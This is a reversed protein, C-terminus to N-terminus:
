ALATLDVIAVAGGAGINTRANAKQTDTLGQANTDFRVFKNSTWEETAVMRDANWSSTDPLRLGYGSANPQLRPSNSDSVGQFYFGNNIMSDTDLGFYICNTGRNISLGNVYLSGNNVAIVDSGTFNNGSLIVHRADLQIGSEYPVDSGDGYTYTKIYSTTHSDTFALGSSNSITKLGTITQAGADLIFTGTIDPLTYTRDAHLMGSYQRAFISNGTSHPSGLVFGGDIYTKYNASTYILINGTSTISNPSLTESPKVYLSGTLAKLSGASLPLYSTALDGDPIGGSPKSYTGAGINTRANAKETDGLGQSNIDFRVYRTDHTHDGVAVTTSTTGTPITFALEGAGGNATATYTLGSWSGTTHYYNTASITIDHGSGRLAVNAGSVFNVAGTSIGTGLLETGDVQINRWTDSDTDGAPILVWESGNSVFVDGVKAAQGAYTGATIVKYTYGENVSSAAPLVSITGGIGLTGKFIMPEPLNDIATWVAGSTVLDNNGSAVSTAVGKGAAAGLVAITNSVVSTGGVTVDTVPYSPAPASITITHTDSDAAVTVNGSGVINLTSNGSQNAGFLAAMTSNGYIYLYGNNVTPIDSTMAFTGDKNPFEFSHDATLNTTKLIAYKPSNGSQSSMLIGGTDAAGYGRLRVMGDITFTITEGGAGTLIFDSDASGGHLSLAGINTRANDKQANSLGQANTDYRVYRAESYERTALTRGTAENPIYLVQNNFTNEAQLTIYNGDQGDWLVLQGRIYNSGIVIRAPDDDVNNDIQLNGYLTKDGAFSQTTTSVLGAQGYTAFQVYLDALGTGVATGIKLGSSGATTPTHYHDTNDSAPMKFIITNGGATLQYSQNYDLTITPTGSSSALSLTHTHNGVAVTNATTGTPITFALPDAGGNATATYTLGSWSGTTHYKDTASITIKPAGTGSTAGTVSINTGAVIDIVDNDGFTTSGAKIRQNDTSGGAPIFRTVGNITISTWNTGDNLGSVYDTTAITKNATLDPFSLTYDGIKIEKTRYETPSGSGDNLTLRARTTSSSTFTSLEAYASGSPANVRVHKHSSTSDPTVNLSGTLTGGTLPLFPGGSVNVVNGSEDRATLFRVDSGVGGIKAIIVANNLKNKFKFIYAYDGQKLNEPSISKVSRIVTVMDPLVNIDYSGDSNCAMIRCTATNDEKILEQQILERILDVMNNAANKTSKESM